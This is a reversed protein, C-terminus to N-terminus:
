WFEEFVNPIKAIGKEFYTVVQIHQEGVVTNEFLTVDVNAYHLEVINPSAAERSHHYAARSGGPIQALRLGIFAIGLEIEVDRDALVAVAVVAIEHPHLFHALGHSDHFLAEILQM